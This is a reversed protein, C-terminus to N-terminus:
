RRGARAKSCNGDRAAVPFGVVVRLLEALLGLGAALQGGMGPYYPGVVRGLQEVPDAAIHVRHGHDVHPLDVLGRPRDLLLPAVVVLGLVQGPGDGDQRPRRDHHDPGVHL